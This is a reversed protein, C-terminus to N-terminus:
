LFKFYKKIKNKNPVIPEKKINKKAFSVLPGNFDTNLPVSIDSLVLGESKPNRKKKATIGINIEKKICFTVLLKLFNQNM